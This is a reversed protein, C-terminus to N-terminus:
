REDIRGYMLLQCRWTLYLMSRELFIISHLLVSFGAFFAALYWHVQGRKLSYIRKLNQRYATYIDRGALKEIRNFRSV